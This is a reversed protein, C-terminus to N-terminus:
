RATSSTSEIRVQAGSAFVVRSGAVAGIGRGPNPSTWVPAGSTVSLISNLSPSYVLDTAIPQIKSLEPLPSDTVKQGAPDYISAGLYPVSLHDIPGYNNVLLRNNDLWGVALGPVASVLAGNEIINTTINAATTSTRVGDSAAILTGDPSLQMTPVSDLTSATPPTDSWVIAGGTPASVRREMNWGLSDTFSGTVQGLATGSGSLEFDQLTIDGTPYADYPWSYFEAGSPLSFLKLTRDPEYQADLGNAAAALVSGDSSLVVKSSRFDVTGEEAKTAADFYIIKGSATAVAIRAPSGAISLAAGLGLSKETAPTGQSLVVVGHSNGIVWRSSSVAAFASGYALSSTYDARTPAPGSLDIVSFQKEGFVLVGLQNASPVVNSLVPLVHTATPSASAGVSYISLTSYQSYTWFWNGHGALGEITPLATLDQQTGARSYTWVTNSLHTLFREGDTFWSHFEGQFPASTSAAGTPVAITEVVSAGAPGKAVRVEDPAAFAAANSYDGARTFLIQGSTSWARLETTTAAVLYTGDTSLKWWSADYTVAGTVQGDTAARIEFGDSTRIAATPGAMEVSEGEGSALMAATTSNWLAWHGSVDRSLVRSGTSRLSEIQEAHGLELLVGSEVVITLTLQSEGGSNRAAVVYSASAAEATPVGSILGNSTSFTLGEPLAHDISWATAVGGTNGPTVSVPVGTTLQLSTQPLSIRPPVDNVAISLTATAQGSSNSATVTYNGAAAPATPTGSIAGTGSNLNLGAPLAPSVTYATVVGTVTPSLTTIPQGVVFVQPTSYALGAPAPIPSENTSGGGGGGGCAALVLAILGVVLTSRAWILRAFRKM